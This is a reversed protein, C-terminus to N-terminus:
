LQDNAIAEGTRWRVNRVDVNTNAVVKRVHEEKILFPFCYQVKKSRLYPENLRSNFYGSKTINQFAFVTM